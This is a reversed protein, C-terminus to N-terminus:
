PRFTWRLKAALTEQQPLFQLPGNLDPRQWARNWVLFADVGPKPSWRLRLNCGLDRTSTDYQALLSLILDPSWAKEVKLEYLRQVFDGWPLHGYDNELSLTLNLRGGWGNLGASEIWQLLNGGYFGGFWVTSSLKENRSAATEVQVRYRDFRYDGAPIVVGPSIEFPQVLVEEEPQWNAEVHDGAQTVLNFPALFLQSSQLRGELDEVRSYQAEFFAQRVWALSPSTPRPQYAAGFSWQRTGPRPLFGLAPDLADGFRNFVANLDWLDNPYDVKAGWGTPSGAPLDGSSRAGWLGMEFTKDGLFGSTQYLADVGGLSNDQRPGTPDGSTGLFGVRWHSDLDWSVRAAGLTRAEGDATAVQHIALAGVSVPGARGIVKAGGDLAVPQGDVLGITRSFFPIFAQDLGLGFQFQNAGELFFARKEPFFLAFRTLNIQRADVETEAFDPNVTLVGTLEAGLPMSLDVGARGQWHSEGTTFDKTRHASAYPTISLGSGRELGQVGELAGARAMDPFKADLVPSAWRLSLRERAVTRELNLGWRAHTPDFRLTRSPIFLEATWGAGDRFTAAEWVGDWDLSLSEPGWSLGDARAGAANVSFYYATRQDGLTDLLLSVEDDGSFDGDRQLTHTVVRSPDPDACAFGFYLGEPAALIRVTTTFPTAGGPAPAQQTLTLTPAGAWAAEDLRGDLTIPGSPRSAQASPAQAALPAALLLAAVGERIM